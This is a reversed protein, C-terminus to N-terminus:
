EDHYVGKVKRLINVHKPLLSCQQDDSDVWHFYGDNYLAVVTQLLYCDKNNGMMEIVYFDFNNM